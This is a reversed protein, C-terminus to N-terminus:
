RRAAALHEAATGVRRYDVAPHEIGADGYVKEYVGSQLLRIPVAEWPTPGVLRSLSVIREAVGLAGISWGDAPWARRMAEELDTWLAVVEDAVVFREDDTM